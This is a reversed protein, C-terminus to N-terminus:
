AEIRTGDVSFHEDSLLDLARAERVVADLVKVAVEEGALRERNKSYTSPDFSPEDLGM